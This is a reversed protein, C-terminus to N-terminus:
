HSHNTFIPRLLLPMAGPQRLKSGHRTEKKSLLLMRKGLTPPPGKPGTRDSGRSIVIITKIWHLIVFSVAPHIYRFITIIHM